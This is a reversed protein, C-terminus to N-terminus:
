KKKEKQHYMRLAMTIGERKRERQRVMDKLSTWIVVRLVYMFSQIVDVCLLVSGSCCVSYVLVFVTVIHLHMRNCVYM